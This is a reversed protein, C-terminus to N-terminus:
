INARLVRLFQCFDGVGIRRLRKLEDLLQGDISRRRSLKDPEVEHLRDIRQRQFAGNALRNKGM